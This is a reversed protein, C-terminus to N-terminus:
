DPTAKRFLSPLFTSWPFNKIGNFHLAVDGKEEEDYGDVAIYYTVGGVASFVIQSQYSLEHDDNDTIKTLTEVTTGTYVALTTDFTSTFTDIVIQGSSPATWSFWISAYATTGGDGHNPEGPEATAGINVGTMTGASGSLRTAAAFNDNGPAPTVNLLVTGQETEDWGDVAISYTTGAVAFFDIHSQTDAGFDDNETIKSLSNVATGTYAALTTDFDSGFTDFNIQASSPATWSFWISVYATTGGDGHNPEGSEATAGINIGTITKASGPIVAADVFDDNAAAPLWNLVVTGQEETDCGDVAISYTTGAVAAFDIQSQYDTGFDDNDTIKILGDVATGTYAALTTDFDSGLTNMYIQGSSPATWSFWISAYATAGGDGHNPEGPEATAGINSGNITGASGSLLIADIYNDNGPAPMWNLLVTGQEEIDYGDVAIYYTTGAVAFFGILSQVDPGFDDNETLQTLDGVATGTYAALTTDFTSGFTHVFIQGSSPATWKFWISAYATTGTDGHNPEGTEATAAINSATTIGTAESLVTAAAFNDNLPAAQAITLGWASLISYFIFFLLPQKLTTMAIEM